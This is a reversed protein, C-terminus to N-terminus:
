GRSGSVSATEATDEDYAQGSPIKDYATTPASQEAKEGVAEAGDISHSAELLASPVGETPEEFKQRGRAAQMKAHLSKYSQNPWPDDDQFLAAVAVCPGEGVASKCEGGNYTPDFICCPLKHCDVEDYGQHECVAEASQTRLAEAQRAQSKSPAAQLHKESVTGQETMAQEAAALEADTLGNAKLEGHSMYPLPKDAEDDDSDSSDATSSSRSHHHEQATQLLVTMHPMHMKSRSAAPRSGSTWSPTAPARGQRLPRGGPSRESAGPPSGWAPQQSFAVAPQAPQPAFGDGQGPDAPGGYAMPEDHGYRANWGQPVDQRRTTRPYEDTSPRGWANRAAPVSVDGQPPPPPQSQWRQWQPAVRDEQQQRQVELSTPQSPQPLIRSQSNQPAGYYPERPAQLEWSGPVSQWESPQRQPAAASTYPELPSERYDGEERPAYAATDPWFSPPAPRSVAQGPGGDRPMADMRGSASGDAFEGFQTRSAVNAATPVPYGPPQRGQYAPAPRAPPILPPADEFGAGPPFYFQRGDKGAGSGKGKGKGKSPEPMGDQPPRGSLGEKGRGKGSKDQGKGHYHFTRPEEDGGETPGPEYMPRQRPGEVTRAPLAPRDSGPQSTAAPPSGPRAPSQRESQVTAAPQAAEVTAAKPPEAHKRAKAVPLPQPAVQPWPKEQSEGAAESLPVHTESLNQPPPFDPQRGSQLDAKTSGVIPSAASSNSSGSSNADMRGAAAPQLAHRLAEIERRMASGDTEMHKAKEELSDLLKAELAAEISLDEGSSAAHKATVEKAMQQMAQQSDTRTELARHLEALRVTSSSNGQLVIAPGSRVTSNALPASSQPPPLPAKAADRKSNAEPAKIAQSATPGSAAQQAEAHKPARTTQALGEQWSDAEAVLRGAEDFLAGTSADRSELLAASGQAQQRALQESRLLPAVHGPSAAHAAVAYLCLLNAGSPAAVAAALSRLVM